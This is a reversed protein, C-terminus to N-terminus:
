FGLIAVSKGIQHSLGEQLDQASGAWGAGQLTAVFDLHARGARYDPERPPHQLYRDLLALDPDVLLTATYHALGRERRLCSGGLKRDGLALDSIGRQTVGAVGCAALASIVVDSALKFAAPIGGLGPLPLVLAVIVNGPDLVVAGGGGPRRFVPVGDATIAAEHLERAADGGRGIVVAVGDPRYVRCLARGTARAEAVLEDEREYPRIGDM